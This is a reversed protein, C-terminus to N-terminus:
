QCAQTEEEDLAASRTKEQHLAEEPGYQVAMFSVMCEAQATPTIPANQVFTTVLSRVQAETWGRAGLAIDTATSQPERALSKAAKGRASLEVRPSTPPTASTTPKSNGAVAGILALIVLGIVLAKLKAIGQESSAAFRHQCLPCAAQPGASLVALATSAARKMTQTGQKPKM